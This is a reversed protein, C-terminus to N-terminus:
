GDSEANKELELTRPDTDVQKQFPDKKRNIYTTIALFTVAASIIATVVIPFLMTGLKKSSQNITQWVYGKEKGPIISVYIAYENGQYYAVASILSYDITETLNDIGYSSPVQFDQRFCEIDGLKVSTKNLYNSLAKSIVASSNNDPFVKLAIHDTIEIETEQFNSFITVLHMSLSGFHTSNLLLLLHHNFGNVRQDYKYLTDILQYLVEKKGTVEKYENNFTNVAYSSWDLSLVTSLVFFLAAGKM